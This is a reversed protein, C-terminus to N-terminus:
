ILYIWIRDPWITKYLLHVNYLLDYKYHLLDNGIQKNYHLNMYITSPPCLSRFELLPPQVFWLIMLNDLFWDIILTLLCYIEQKLDLLDFCIWVVIVNWESTRNLGTIYRFAWFKFGFTAAFKVSLLKESPVGISDRLIDHREFNLVLARLFNSICYCKVRFDSQTGYYIM